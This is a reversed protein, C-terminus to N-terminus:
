RRTTIPSISSAGDDPLRRNYDFVMRSPPPRDGAARSTKWQNETGALLQGLAVVVAAGDGNFTADWSQGNPHEVGLDWHRTSGTKTARAVRQRGDAEREIVVKIEPRSSLFTLVM